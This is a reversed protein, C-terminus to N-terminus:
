PTKGESTTGSRRSVARTASATGAQETPTARSVIRRIVTSGSPTVREAGGTRRRRHHRSSSGTAPTASSHGMVTPWVAITPTRAPACTTAPM